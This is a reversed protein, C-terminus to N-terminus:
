LYLSVDAQDTLRDLLREVTQGFVPHVIGPAIEALPALVFRREHLRPHPLTLDIGGRNGEARCDNFLLLDIDITRPGLPIERSRGLEHETELCFKLLEWPDLTSAGGGGVQAVQNLFVPQDKYGVPDTQYISSLREFVLGKRTLRAVAELLNAARDGLNSGFALYIGGHKMAISGGAQIPM